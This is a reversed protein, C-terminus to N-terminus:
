LSGAAAVKKRPTFRRRLETQVAKLLNPGKALSDFDVDGNSSYKEALKQYQKWLREYCGNIFANDIKGIDLTLLKDAPVYAHKMQAAAVYMALYFKLNRQHGIDLNVVDSAVFSEVRRYLLVCKLYLTLDFKDEGFMQAYREDEKIYDRPRARADDPRRLIIAVTAQVLEIVSVINGIPKGEDKYQGKRRDYYLEYQRFLTEIQGHIRDTARLAEAPMKNQSNTARIVDDRVAEDSSQIVRVMIRRTDDEPRPVGSGARYYADIQRSTQLGNVIQPDDIELKKYGVKSAKGALITIGNNLLSFDANGPKDLTNRISVNVPTNQQFGRVNSEFIREHLDGHEDQLFKWYDDLKVLGVFGEPTELPSDQWHLAKSKPTRLQVQTWLKQANIFHFACNANSLHENAKETVRNAAGEADANPAEDAQTIYYYDIFVDPFAGAIQQYKNKFVRMVELVKANYTTRYDSPQRSLDLLDDSFFVLKNIENPSFGRHQKVQLVLINVKCATKPDLDTDEQVLRRNVFFYAADAGGDNGGGVLGLRLEDDSVAFQKLFQDVCYYEFPDVGTLGPMRDAQWTAFNAKLALVDNAGM